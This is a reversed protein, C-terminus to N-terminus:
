ARKRRTKGTVNRSAVDGAAAPPRGSNESAIKLQPATEDRRFFGPHPDGGGRPAQRGRRCDIPPQCRVWRM